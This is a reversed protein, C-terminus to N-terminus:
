KEVMSDLKRLYHLNKVDNNLADFFWWLNMGDSVKHIIDEQVEGTFPFWFVSGIKQSSLIFSVCLFECYHFAVHTINM